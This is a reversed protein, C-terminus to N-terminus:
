RDCLAEVLDVIAAFQAKANFNSVVHARALRGIEHLHERPSDVVETMARLFGDRDGPRVLWGLGQKTLVEPIGAVGMAIPCCGSAMAELLTLPLGEIRSPMLFVDFAPYIEWPRDSFGLLLVKDKLGHEEILRLLIARSPGEGILVYRMDRQLRSNALAGFLKISEDFGKEPSLRGISGFVLAKKPIGWEGRMANRWAPSPSFKEVEIGNRITTLKQPRFGYMEILSKRVADSVCVIHHPGLGRLYRSLFLGYWWLGLGPLLGWLHMGKGKKPMVQCELHEISIFRKFLLRAAMDLRWGGKDISGKPLVLVECEPSMLMRLSELWNLQNSYQGKKVHHVRIDEKAAINAQDYIGEGIELIEVDHGRAKLERSLNVTHVEMGGWNGTMALICVRIGQKRGTMSRPV